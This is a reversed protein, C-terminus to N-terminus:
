RSDDSLVSKPVSEEIIADEEIIETPLIFSPNALGGGYDEDVNRKISSKSKNSGKSTIRSQVGSMHTNRMKPTPPEDDDSSTSPHSKASLKPSKSLSSKMPKKPKTDAASAKLIFAQKDQGITVSKRPNMITSKRTRNRTRLDIVSKRRETESFFTETCSLHAIM